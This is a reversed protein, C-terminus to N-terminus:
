THTVILMGLPSHLLLLPHPSLTSALIDVQQVLNNTSHSHGAVNVVGVHICSASVTLHFFLVELALSLSKYQAALVTELISNANSLSNRLIRLTLRTAAFLINPLVAVILGGDKLLVASM